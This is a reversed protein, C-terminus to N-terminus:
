GTWRRPARNNAAEPQYAASCRMFFSRVVRVIGSIETNAANEKTTMINLTGRGPPVVPCATPTPPLRSQARVM